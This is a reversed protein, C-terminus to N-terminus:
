KGIVSLSPEQSFIKPHTRVLATIDDDVSGGGPWWRSVDVIQDPGARQKDLRRKSIGTESGGGGGTGGDGNNSFKEPSIRRSGGRRDAAAM